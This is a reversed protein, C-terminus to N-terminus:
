DSQSVVEAIKDSFEKASYESFEAFMFTEIDITENPMIKLPGIEILGKTKDLKVMKNGTVVVAQTSGRYNIVLGNDTAHANGTPLRLRICIEEEGHLHAGQLSIKRLITNTNKLGSFQEVVKVGNAWWNAKVAPIGESNTWCVRTQEGFATFAFQSTMSVVELATSNVGDEPNYNYALNKSNNKISEANFIYGTVAPGLDARDAQLILQMSGGRVIFISGAMSFVGPKKLDLENPINKQAYTCLGTLLLLSLLVKRM